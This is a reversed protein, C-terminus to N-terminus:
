DRVRSLLGRKKFSPPRAPAPAADPAEIATAPPSAAKRLKGARAAAKRPAGAQPAPTPPVPSQAAAAAAEPQEVGVPAQGELLLYLVLKEFEAAFRDVIRSPEAVFKKDTILGFQVQGNYSLISIGMGIDGSQPVWFMQQLLQRGAMYLPQQPGPVNTMVASAKSSFLDLVQKQMQRPLLGVAGLIGMSLVAQYSNKLDDM